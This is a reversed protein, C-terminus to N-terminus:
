SLLRGNIDALFILTETLALEARNLQKLCLSPVIIHSTLRTPWEMRGADCRVRRLELKTRDSNYM